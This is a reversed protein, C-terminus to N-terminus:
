LHDKSEIILSINSDIDISISETPNLFQQAALVEFVGVGRKYSVLIKPREDDNLSTVNTITINAM